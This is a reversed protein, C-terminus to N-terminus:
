GSRGSIRGCNGQGPTLAQAEKFLQAQRRGVFDEYDQPLYGSDIYRVRLAYAEEALKSQEQVPRRRFDAPLEGSEIMGDVLRNGQVRPVRRSRNAVPRGLAWVFYFVFALGGLFIGTVMWAGPSGGREAAQGPLWLIAAVWLAIGILLIEM